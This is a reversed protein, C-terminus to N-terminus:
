WIGYPCAIQVVQERDVWVKSEGNADNSGELKYLEAFADAVKQCREHEEEIIYIPKEM